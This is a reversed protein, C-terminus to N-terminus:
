VVANFNTGVICGQSSSVSGSACVTTSNFGGAPIAVQAFLSPAVLGLCAFSILLVAMQRLSSALLRMLGEKPRVPYSSTRHPFDKASGAVPFQPRASLM